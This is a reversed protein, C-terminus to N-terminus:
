EEVGDNDGVLPCRRRVVRRVAGDGFERVPVEDGRTRKLELDQALKLPFVRTSDHHTGADTRSRDILDFRVHNGVHVEAGRARVSTDAEVSNVALGSSMKPQPAKGAGPSRGLKKGWAFM